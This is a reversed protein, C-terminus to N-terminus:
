SRTAPGRRCTWSWTTSDGWLVDESLQTLVHHVMPGRWIVPDDDGVLFAMSMLKM